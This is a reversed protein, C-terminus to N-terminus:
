ILIESSSNEEKNNDEFSEYAAALPSSYGDAQSKGIFYKIAPAFKNNKSCKVIHNELIKTIKDIDKYDPYQKWFRTLFTKLENTTPRFYVGGFGEKQDRGTNKKMCAKLKTTIEEYDVVCPTKLPKEEGVLEKLLEKGKDTLSPTPTIYGLALLNIEIQTNQFYSVAEEDRCFYLFCLATPTLGKKFLKRLIEKNIELKENM